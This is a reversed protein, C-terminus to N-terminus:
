LTSQHVAVTLPATTLFTAAVSFTASSSGLPNNPSPDINNIILPLPCEQRPGLATM